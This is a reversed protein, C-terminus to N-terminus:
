QWSAITAKAKDPDWVMAAADEDSLDTYPRAAQSPRRRGTGENMTVVVSPTTVVRARSAADVVADLPHGEATLEALVRAVTRPNAGTALGAAKRNAIVQRAPDEVLQPQAPETARRTPPASARPPAPPRGQPQCRALVAPADAAHHVPAGGPASTRWQHVPAGGGPASTCVQLDRARALARTATTRSVGVKRALEAVPTAPELLRAVLVLRHTTSLEPHFVLAALAQSDCPQPLTDM